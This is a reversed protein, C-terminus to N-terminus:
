VTFSFCKVLLQKGLYSLLIGSKNKMRMKPNFLLKGRHQKIIQWCREALSSDCPNERDADANASASKKKSLLRLINFAMSLERSSVAPQLTQDYQDIWPKVYQMVDLARGDRVSWTNLTGNWRKFYYYIPLDIWCAKSCRAYVNLLAYLDEYAVFQEPFPDASLIERRFLKIPSSDMEHQYLMSEISAHGTFTKLRYSTPLPRHLQAPTYNKREQESLLVYSTQVVDAHQEEIVKQLTELYSAHLLDDSDIFAVYQGQCESLGINRAKAPGGHQLHLVSIRNDKAAYEECIAASGDTSGDDVLFLEWDKMSQSLVSELCSALYPEVNYVPIVISIM